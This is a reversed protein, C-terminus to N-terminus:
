CTSCATASSTSSRRAGRRLTMCRRGARGVPPAQNCVLYAVPLRVGGGARRPRRVRGDLRRRAERRAPQLSRPLLRRAAAGDEDDVRFFRVDPHWVPAEGDAPASARRRLAARGARVARRARAAAPLVPALEEDSYAYREERLREAWFAVDWHTLTTPRRHAQPARSRACSTWTASRPRRVLRARLEELLREVAPSTRRWRARSASRPSARSASCGRRSAACACSAARRAAHQRARRELRARSTPATSGSACTAAAPTSCSPCSARAPRAHHAVPGGRGDRRGRGGARAASRRSRASARPCARSRTRRARADARVGQDRRARPQLVRTSLEALETQIANFRERAEGELGVGALEADRVLADVIRRETADLAGASGEAAGEAGPLHPRSQGLRLSFTVVEPQVAEHAARLADSNKVGMLHGVTGWARQLRDTLAELPAM